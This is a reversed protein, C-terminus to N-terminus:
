IKRSLDFLKKLPVSAFSKAVARKAKERKKLLM